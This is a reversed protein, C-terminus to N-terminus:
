GHKSDADSTGNTAAPTASAETKSVAGAAPKIMAALEAADESHRAAPLEPDAEGAIAPLKVEPAIVNTPSGAAAEVADAPRPLPKKKAVPRRV